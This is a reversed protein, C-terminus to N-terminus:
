VLGECHAFEVSRAHGVAALVKRSPIPVTPLLIDGAPKPEARLPDVTTDGQPVYLNDSEFDEDYISYSWTPCAWTRKLPTAGPGTVPVGDPLPCGGRPTSCQTTM